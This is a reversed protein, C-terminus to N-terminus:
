QFPFDPDKYIILLSFVLLSALNHLLSQIDLVSCPIDLISTLSAWLIFWDLIELRFGLIGEGM